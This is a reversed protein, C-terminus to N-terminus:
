KDEPELGLDKRADNVLQDDKKNETKSALKELPWLVLRKLVRGTVISMLMSLLITGLTKLIPILAPLLKMLYIM